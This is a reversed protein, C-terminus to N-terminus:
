DDEPGPYHPLAPPPGPSDRPPRHKLRGAVTKLRTAYREALDRGTDRLGAAAADWADLLDDLARDLRAREGDLQRRVSNGGLYGGAFALILWLAPGVPFIVMSALLLLVFACGKGKREAAEPAERLLRAFRQQEREFRDLADHFEELPRSLRHRVAAPAGAGPRLPVLDGPAAANGAARVWLEDLHEVVLDAVAGAARDAARAIRDPDAEEGSRGAQRPVQRVAEKIRAALGTRLTSRAM